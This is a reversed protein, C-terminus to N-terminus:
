APSSKCLEFPQATTLDCLLSTNILLQKMSQNHQQTFPVHAVAAEGCKSTTTLNPTPTTSGSAFNSHPHM